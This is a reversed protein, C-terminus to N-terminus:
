AVTEQRCGISIARAFSGGTRHRASRRSPSRRAAHPPSAARRGTVRDDRSAAPKRSEPRADRSQTGRIAITMQASSRRCRRGRRPAVQHRQIWLSAHSPARSTAPSPEPLELRPDPGQDARPRIADDSDPRSAASAYRPDGFEKKRSKWTGGPPPRFGVWKSQTIRDRARLRRRSRERRDYRHQPTAGM